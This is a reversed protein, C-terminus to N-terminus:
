FEEALGALGKKPSAPLGIQRAIEADRVPRHSSPERSGAIHRGADREVEPPDAFLARLSDVVHAPPELRRGRGLM